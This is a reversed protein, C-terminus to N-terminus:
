INTKNKNKWLEKIGGYMRGLYMGILVWCISGVFVGFELGFPEPFEKIHIFFDLIYAIPFAPLSLLMHYPLCDSLRGNGWANPCYKDNYFLLIAVFILFFIGFRLWYRKKMM